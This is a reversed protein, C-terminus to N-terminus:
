GAPDPAVSGFLRSLLRVLDAQRGTRTKRYVSKLHSRATNLTIHRTACYEEVTEGSLLAAALQSEKPTLGYLTHLVNASATAPQRSDILVVIAAPEARENPCALPAAFVTVHQDTGPVSLNMGYATATDMLVDSIAGAFERQMASATLRGNRNVLVDSQELIARAASNQFLLTCDRGVIVVGFSFRDLAAELQGVGVTSEGLQAALRQGLDEFRAMATEISPILQHVSIPKVLYAFVGSDIADRVRRGDSHGSLVVIPRYHIRMMQQALETGVVDPLGIDVIALEPPSKTYASLAARASAATTIRYGARVLGTQLTSLVVPDDDVLLIHGSM